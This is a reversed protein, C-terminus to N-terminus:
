MQATSKVSICVDSALSRVFWCKGSGRDPCDRAVVEKSVINVALTFASSVFYSGPEAIISVGSCPPFYLAAVSMVARSIQLPKLPLSCPGFACVCCSHQSIAVCATCWGAGAPDRLWQLGRRHGPYEYQLWNGGSPFLPKNSYYM